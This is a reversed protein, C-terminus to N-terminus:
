QGWDWGDFRCAILVCSYGSSRRALNRPQTHSGKLSTIGKSAGGACKGSGDGVDAHPPGGLQLLQHIAVGSGQGPELLSSRGGLTVEFADPSDRGLWWEDRAGRACPAPDSLVQHNDGLTVNAM